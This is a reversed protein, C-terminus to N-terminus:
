VRRGGTQQACSLGPNSLEPIVAILQIGRVVARTHRFAWVGGGLQPEGVRVPM